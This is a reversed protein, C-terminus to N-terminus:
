YDTLRRRHHSLLRVIENEDYLAKLEDDTIDESYNAALIADENLVVVVETCQDLLGKDKLLALTRDENLSQSVRKQRKIGTVQKPIPTGAKVAFYEEPQTWNSSGTGM